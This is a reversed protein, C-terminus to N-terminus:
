FLQWGLTLSTTVFTLDSAVTPQVDLGLRIAGGTQTTFLTYGAGLSGAMGVETDIDLDTSYLGPTFIGLGISGSVSLTHSLWYQASAGLYYINFTELEGAMREYLTGQDLKGMIALDPTVFGGLEARIIPASVEAESEGGEPSLHTVGVGASYAMTFGQRAASDSAGPQGIAPSAGLTAVLTVVLASRNM